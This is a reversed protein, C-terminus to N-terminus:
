AILTAALTRTTTSRDERFRLEAYSVLAAAVTYVVLPVTLVVDVLHGIVAGTPTPSDAGGFPTLLLRVVVTSAGIYAAYIAVMVATRGCAFWYGSRVLRLCRSLGARELFVVGVVTPLVIVAVATLQVFGLAPGIMELWPSGTVMWPLLLLGFLVTTVLVCLGGWGIFPAVRPVALRLAGALGIPQGNAQRLSLHCGAGYCLATAVVILVAFIVM